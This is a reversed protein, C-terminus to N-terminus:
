PRRGLGLVMTLCGQCGDTAGYKDVIARTLYIRRPMNEQKSMAPDKLVIDRNIDVDVRPRHADETERRRDVEVPVEAKNWREEM